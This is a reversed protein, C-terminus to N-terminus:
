FTLSITLVVILQQARACGLLCSYSIVPRPPPFSADENGERVRESGKDTIDTLRAWCKASASAWALSARAGGTLDSRAWNFLGTLDSRAWNFLGTLDSRTRVVCNVDYLMAPTLPSLLSPSSTLPPLSKNLAEKPPSSSGERGM